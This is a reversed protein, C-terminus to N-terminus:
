SERCSVEVVGEDEVRVSGLDMAMYPQVAYSKDARETIRAIIEMGISLGISAKSFAICGRVSAATTNLRQTRIFKFGLFTDVEGHVLAKVTNFDSSTVATTALLDDIQVASALFFRPDSPDIESADLIRKAERLKAITLGTSAEAIKQASPLAQSGSGTEGTAATGTMATIIVDDMARGLGWGGAKAYEGEPDILTRVKDSKDILDAWEYCALSAMRRSHPTEILPTDGHRTTKIQATTAGVRDFFDTKGTVDTHVTVAGRLRSGKQQALQIVTGRYNQVFADTIQQSVPTGEM